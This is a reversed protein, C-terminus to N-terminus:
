AKDKIIILRDKPEKDTFFVFGMAILFAGISLFLLAVYPMGSKFSLNSLVFNSGNFSMHILIPAILSGKREYALALLVGLLTTYFFQEPNMHAIGFIVASLFVALSTPMVGKLTRYILGRFVVEEVIGTLFAVNLFQIWVNGTEFLMEVAENSHDANLSFFYYFFTLFLGIIIQASFGFVVMAGSSTISIPKVSLERVLSKKILKFFIFYGALTILGSIIGIEHIHSMYDATVSEVTYSAPDRVASSIAIVFSYILAVILQSLLFFGYYGLCKAFALFVKGASSSNKPANLPSSVKILREGCAMCFDAHQQARTGCRHCFRSTPQNSMATMM